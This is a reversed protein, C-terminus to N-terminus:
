WAHEGGPLKRTVDTSWSLPEAPSSRKTQKKRKRRDSSFTCVITTRTTLHLRGSKEKSMCLKLVDGEFKYIGLYKWDEDLPSKSFSTSRWSKEPCTWKKYTGEHGSGVLPEGDLTQTHHRQVKDGKFVWAYVSGRGKPKEKAFADQVEVWAQRRTEQNGAKAPDDKKKAM